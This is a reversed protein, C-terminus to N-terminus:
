ITLVIDGLTQLGGIEEKWLLSSRIQTKNGLHKPSIPLLYATTVHKVQLTSPREFPLPDVFSCYSLV